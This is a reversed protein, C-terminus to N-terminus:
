SAVGRLEREVRGSIVDRPRWTGADLGAASMGDLWEQQRPGYRGRETKLERFLAWGKSPHVLVLDPFGEPSRRSDHTHYHMWGLASALLIVHNQLEVEKWAKIRDDQYDRASGM